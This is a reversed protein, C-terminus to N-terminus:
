ISVQYRLWSRHPRRKGSRLATECRVRFVRGFNSSVRGSRWGREQRRFIFVRAICQIVRAAGIMTRIIPDLAIRLARNRSDRGSLRHDGFGAYQASVTRRKSYVVESPIEVVYRDGKCATLSCRLVLQASKRQCGIDRLVSKSSVNYM